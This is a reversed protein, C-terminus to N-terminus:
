EYVVSGYVNPTAPFAKPTLARMAALTSTAGDVSIETSGAINANSSLRLRGGFTCSIAVTNNAGTLRGVQLSDFLGRGYVSVATSCGNISLPSGSTTKVRGDLVNIGIGTGSTGLIYNANSMIFTSTSSGSLIGFANNGFEIYSQSMSCFIATTANIPSSIGAAATGTGSSKIFCGSVTITGNYLHIAGAASGSSRLACGTLACSGGARIAVAQFVSAPVDFYRIKLGSSTAHTSDAGSITIAAPSSSQKGSLKTDLEHIM